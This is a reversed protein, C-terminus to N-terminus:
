ADEPTYNKMCLRVALKFAEVQEPDDSGIALAIAADEESEELEDDMEDDLAPDEYVAKTIDMGRIIPRITM